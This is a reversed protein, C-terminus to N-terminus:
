KKANEFAFFGVVYSSHSDIFNVEELLELEYLTKAEFSHSVNIAGDTLWCSNLLTFGYQDFLKIFDSPKYVLGGPTKFSSLAIPVSFFIKANETSYESIFKLMNSVNNGGTSNVNRYRNTDMLHITAPCIFYDIKIRDDSNGVNNLYSISAMMREQLASLDSFDYPALNKRGSNPFNLDTPTIQIFNSFHSLVTSAMKFGGVDFVNSKKTLEIQGLMWAYFHIYYDYENEDSLNGESKIWLKILPNLSKQLLRLSHKIKIIPSM